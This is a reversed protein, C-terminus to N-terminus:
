HPLGQGHRHHYLRRSTLSPITYDGASNTVGKSVFNTSTDKAAVEAGVVKAGSADAVSGSITGLYQQASARVVFGLSLTLVIGFQIVLNRIRSNFM